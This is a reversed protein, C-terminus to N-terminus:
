LTEHTNHIDQIFDVLQKNSAPWGHDPWATYHFQIVDWSKLNKTSGGQNDTTSNRSATKNEEFNSMGFDKNKPDLQDEYIATVRLTRKIYGDSYDENVNQIKLIEKGCHEISMESGLVGLSPWYQACKQKNKEVTNCLM